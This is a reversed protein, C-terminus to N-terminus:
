ITKKNFKELAENKCKDRANEISENKNIRTVFCDCIYEGLKMDVTKKNKILENRYGELCFAKILENLDKSTSIKPLLFSLITILLILTSRYKLNNECNM